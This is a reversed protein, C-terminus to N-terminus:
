FNLEVPFEKSLLFLFCVTLCTTLSLVDSSPITEVPSLSRGKGGNGGMMSKGSATDIIPMMGEAFHFFTVLSPYADKKGNNSHQGSELRSWQNSSPPDSQNLSPPDSQILALRM